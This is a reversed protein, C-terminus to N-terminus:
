VPSTMTKLAHRTPSRAKAYATGEALRRRGEGLDEKCSYSLNSDKHQTQHFAHRGWWYSPDILRM